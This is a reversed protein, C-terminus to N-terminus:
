CGLGSLVGIRDMKMGFCGRRFSKRTRGRFKRQRRIFDLLFRPVDGPAPEAGRSLDRGGRSATPPSEGSGENVEPQALLLSSIGAGFLKNLILNDSKQPSPRSDVQTAVVLLLLLFSFFHCSSSTMSSSAAM